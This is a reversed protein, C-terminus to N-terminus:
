NQWDFHSFNFLREGAVCSSLRHHGCCGGITMSTGFSYRRPIGKNRSCNDQGLEDLHTHQQM